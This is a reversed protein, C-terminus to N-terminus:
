ESGFRRKLFSDIEEGIDRVQRGISRDEKIAWRLVRVFVVIGVLIWVASWFPSGGGCSAAHSAPPM